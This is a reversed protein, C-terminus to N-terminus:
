DLFQTNVLDNYVEKAKEYLADFHEIAKEKRDMADQAREPWGDEDGYKREFKAFKANYRALAAAKRDEYYDIEAELREQFDEKRQEIWAQIQEQTM